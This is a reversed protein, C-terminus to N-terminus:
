KVKYYASALNIDKIYKGTRFRGNRTLGYKSKYLANYVEPDQYTDPEYKHSSLKYSKRFNANLYESGLWDEFKTRHQAFSVVLKGNKCSLLPM